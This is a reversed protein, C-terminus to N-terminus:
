SVLSLISAVASKDSPEGALQVLVSLLSAQVVTRGNACSPLIVESFGLGHLCQCSYTSHIAVQIVM